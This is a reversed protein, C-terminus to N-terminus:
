KIINQIGLLGGMMLEIVLRKHCNNGEVKILVVRSGDLMDLYIGVSVVPTKNDETVFRNNNVNVLPSNAYALFDELLERYNM